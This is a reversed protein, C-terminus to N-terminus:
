YLTTCVAVTVIKIAGDVADGVSTKGPIFKKTQDSNETHGTFYRLLCYNIIQTLMYLSLSSLNNVFSFSLYRALLVVLVALAM